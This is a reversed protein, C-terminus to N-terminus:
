FFELHGFGHGDRAHELEAALAPDSASLRRQAEAMAALASTLADEDGNVFAVIMRAESRMARRRVDTSGTGLLELARRAHHAAQEDAGFAM